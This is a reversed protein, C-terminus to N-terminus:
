EVGMALRADLEALVAAEAAPLRARAERESDTRLSRHIEARVEVGAYRRPVRMRLHWTGNRKTIGAM